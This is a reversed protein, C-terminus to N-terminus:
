VQTIGLRAFDEITREIPIIRASSKGGVDIGVMTTILHPTRILWLYSVALAVDDYFGFVSPLFARAFLFLLLRRLLAIPIAILLRGETSNRRHWRHVETDIPITVQLVFEQCVTTGRM